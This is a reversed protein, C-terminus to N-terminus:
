GAGRLINRGSNGFRVDIAPMFAMPDFQSAWRGIGGLIRVDKVVQDATQSNGPSNV